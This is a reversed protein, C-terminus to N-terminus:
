KPVIGTGVKYTGTTGYGTASGVTGAADAAIGLGAVLPNVGQGKQVSNVRDNFRYQLADREASIQGLTMDLNTKNTQAERLKEREVNNLLYNLNSGAFVGAEGSSVVNSARVKAAEITNQFREQAAAQAEQDARLNLARSDNLMSQRANEANALYTKNQEKAAKNAANAGAVGSAASLVLSATMPDCM